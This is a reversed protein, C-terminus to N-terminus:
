GTPIAELEALMESIVDFGGQWFAAEAMDIGAEALIAQPRASGGYALLKLYKPKFAEGEQQYRRYLALVLLQGFSYAYCYFPTHYIHPISVWEYQFEPAIEVSDGFQEQLNDRYLRNLDEVSANDVIADHAQLEFLVFYAQRMVTAYMDDLASALLERRVLPDTEEALLRDTLLMESFVSATEALPLPPHQTLISHHGSLMSHVAHGLEHAVTAVDRVRGTYNVLVWPTQTPLITACFAGGQKGPRIESDIHHQDFVRQARTAVEPSFHEFTDLVTHVADNYAVKKEAAALPAYLDYRRLKELGLWHAKLRFYRQFLPANQRAVQLLVQVAEDPIDNSLNRVAIPTAFGRLKVNENYWDRVRNVYIQALINAEGGFVRYLEQYAAERQAPDPAYAYAMLQDRTLTKTEGEVELSFKLRSTLMTYLTIVADIGNTDKSNIIQESKEDLMFPKFRRVDSLFHRYDAFETGVPLLQSAQATNLSKWWLTFFLMRNQMETLVQQMRNRFALAASSQTDAAFWLSAYGYLRYMQVTIAEYDRVTDLFAGPEMGPQLSERRAAFAAVAKELQDLNQRIVEESPEPLLASLDWTSQEYQRQDKSKTNM